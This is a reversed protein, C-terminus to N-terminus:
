GEDTIVVQVRYRRGGADFYAAESPSNTTLARLRKLTDGFPAADHLDLRQIAESFLEQRKHSTGEGSQPQRNYTGDRLSPWAERFVELECEKLRAYLSHATDAPSIEVQKQHVIDGADLQESMFHLTAGAPTGELIAWSPTHWGRNFPLYAPHLNLTGHHPAELVARPIIFPYHIGIIFDLDLRRFSDADDATLKRSWVSDSALWSCRSKLERSHSARDDPPTILAVPRAGSELLFDLVWVSLDRDGAYAFRPTRSMPPDASAASQLMTAPATM